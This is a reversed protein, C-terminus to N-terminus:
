VVELERNLIEEIISNLVDNKCSPIIQNLDEIDKKALRIIKSVAVDGKSLKLMNVNLNM